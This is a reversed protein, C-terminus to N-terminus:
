SEDEGDVLAIEGGFIDRQGPIETPDQEDGDYHDAPHEWYPEHTTGFKM